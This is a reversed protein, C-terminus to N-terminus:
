RFYSLDKKEGNKPPTPEDDDNDQLPIRAIKLRFFVFLLFQFMYAFPAFQLVKSEVEPDNIVNQGYVLVLALSTAFLILFFGTIFGILHNVPSIGRESCMKHIMYSFGVLLIIFIM